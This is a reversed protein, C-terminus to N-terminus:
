LPGDVIDNETEITAFLRGTKHWSEPTGHAYHGCCSFDHRSSVLEVTVIEGVRTRYQGPKFILTPLAVLSAFYSSGM